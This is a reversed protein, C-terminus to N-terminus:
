LDAPGTGFWRVCSRSLVSQESYGLQRAVQTLTLDSTRLLHEVMQQRSEELLAGFTTGETRLRRQLTKPHMAFHKAIMPMTAAGTPLLQQVLRQVPDRLCDDDDRSVIGELYRV